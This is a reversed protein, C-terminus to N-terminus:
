HIDEEFVNKRLSTYSINSNLFNKKISILHTSRFLMHSLALFTIGWQMM